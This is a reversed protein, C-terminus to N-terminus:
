CSSLNHCPACVSPGHFLLPACSVTNFTRKDRWPSFEVKTVWTKLCLACPAITSETTQPSIRSRRTRNTSSSRIFRVSVLEVIDLFQSCLLKCFFFSLLCSCRAHEASTCVKARVQPADDILDAYSVRSAGSANSHASGGFRSSERGGKLAPPPMTSGESGLASESVDDSLINERSRRIMAFPSMSRPRLISSSKRAAGGSPNASSARPSVEVTDRARGRRPPSPERPGKNRPSLGSLKGMWRYLHVNDKLEIHRPHVCRCYLLRFASVLKFGHICLTSPEGAPL